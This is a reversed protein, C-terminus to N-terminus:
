VDNVVEIYKERSTQLLAKKEKLQEMDETKGLANVIFRLLFIKKRTNQRTIKTKKGENIFIRNVNVKNEHDIGEM